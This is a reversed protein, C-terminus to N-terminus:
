IYFIAQSKLTSCVTGYQRIFAVRWVEGAEGVFINTQEDYWASVSVDYAM